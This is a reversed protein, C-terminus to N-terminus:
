DCYSTAVYILYLPNLVVNGDWVHVFVICLYLVQTFTNLNSEVELPLPHINNEPHFSSKCGPRVPMWKVENPGQSQSDVFCQSFDNQRPLTAPIFQGRTWYSLGRQALRFLLAQSATPAPGPLAPQSAGHQSGRGAESLCPLPYDRRWPSPGASHPQSPLPSNYPVTCLFQRQIHAAHVVFVSTQMTYKLQACSIYMKGHTCTRETGGVHM